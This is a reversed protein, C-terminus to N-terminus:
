SLLVFVIMFPAPNRQHTGIGCQFASLGLCSAAEEDAEGALLEAPGILQADRLGLLMEM